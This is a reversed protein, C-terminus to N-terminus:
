DWTLYRINGLFREVVEWIIIDPKNELIYGTDDQEFPRWIYEARSFLSSTFPELSKFFSDRFILAKPLDQNSNETIIGNEGNDGEYKKYSYCSEWGDEPEIEVITRQAYSELGLFRVLDGTSDKSITRSYNIAPFEVGPFCARIKNFLQEYAYFAGLTNWHTDTEFYLPLPTNAEKQSIIYDRPFITKNKLNESMNVIIQDARTSGKPRSFSYYEPYVSHKNPTIFFIFQIGNDSCWQARKEIQETAGALEAEDLLNKKKFDELNNGDAISIYYLWGM